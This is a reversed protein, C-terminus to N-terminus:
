VQAMGGDVFLEVGHIFSADEGSLFAIARAIENPTGIRGTPNGEGMAKVQADVGDAGFAKALADRLSETDIAGPSLVNIRVGSGKIDQIWGRVFNRLAAKAGGYLSMGYPPHISATSGIITISSGPKLWPLAKQVTYFTGKVNVGFTMDFEDDTISRLASHHGSAANAIVHDLRGFRSQIQEYLADMQEGNAIDGAIGTVNDGLNVAARDADAQDRSTVVVKAGREAFEGATAFGIGSTGGTVLVVQNDFDNM